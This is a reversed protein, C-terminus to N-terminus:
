LNQLQKIKVKYELMMSNIIEIDFLEIKKLLEQSFDVFNDIKYKQSLCLLSKAFSAISNLDNTAIAQIFLPEVAQTHEILFKKVSSKDLHLFEDNSHSLTQTSGKSWSNLIKLSIKFLEVKSIPKKLYGVVNAGDKVFSIGKTSQATLTVLPAQSIKAIVKSVANDDSSLITIDVFLLDFKKTKLLELGERPSTFTSVELSSDMFADKIVESSAELDDIVMIHGGDPKLLTFDINSEDMDDEASHLVIEIGGLVLTFTSGEGVKSSVSIDGNMLKAMKKNISLGLGTGQFEIENCNERKEFIEFIKKHNKVDIGIGTDSVSIALDITNNSYNLQYVSVKIKITGESTFKIANNILNQLINKVKKDDLILSEPIEKDIELTFDLGKKYAKEKHEKFIEDFFSSIDVAHNEINFLGSELRSLEIINDLLALLKQGSTFINKAYSLHTKNKLEHLLMDSFALISNMPTRVEHRMNALFEQKVHTAVQAIQKAEQVRQKQVVIESELEEIKQIKESVFSTRNLALTKSSKEQLAALEEALEEAKKKYMDREDELDQRDQFSGFFINKLSM